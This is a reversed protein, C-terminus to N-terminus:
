EINMVPSGRLDLLRGLAEVLVILGLQTGRRISMDSCRARRWHNARTALQSDEIHREISEPGRRLPM